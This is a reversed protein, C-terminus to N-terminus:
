HHNHYHPPLAKHTITSTTHTITSATHLHTVTSTTHVLTIISTTLLRGSAVEVMGGRWVAEVM